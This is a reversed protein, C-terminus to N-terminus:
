IGLSQMSCGDETVTVYYDWNHNEDDQVQIRHRGTLVIKSVTGTEGCSADGHKFRTNTQGVYEGDIWVKLNVCNCTKYFSLKGYGKGYPHYAEPPSRYVVKDKYLTRDQYVTEIRPGATILKSITDNLRYISDSFLSLMAITESLSDRCVELQRQWDKILEKSSNLESERMSLAEAVETVQIKLREKETNDGVLKVGYLYLAIIVASIFVLWFWRTQLISSSSM